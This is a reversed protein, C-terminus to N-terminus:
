KRKLNNWLNIDECSLYLPQNILSEYPLSINKLLNISKQYKIDPDEHFLIKVHDDIQFIAICM